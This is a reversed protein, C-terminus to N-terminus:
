YIIKVKDVGLRARYDELDDIRMWEHCAGTRRDIYGATMEGTCISSRVAAEQTAPDFEFPWPKPGRRFPNKVRRVEQRFDGRRGIFPPRPSLM